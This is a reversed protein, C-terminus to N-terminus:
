AVRANLLKVQQDLIRVEQDNNTKAVTIWQLRTEDTHEFEIQLEYRRSSFAAIIAGVIFAVPGFFQGFGSPCVMWVLSSVILGILMVRLAHSVLTNKCSRANKIRTLSYENGKFVFQNNIVKFDDLTIM